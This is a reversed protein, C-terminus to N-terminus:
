SVDYISYLLYIPNQIELCVMLSLFARTDNHMMPIGQLGAILGYEGTSDVAAVPAGRFSKVCNFSSGRDWDQTYYGRAGYGIRVRIHAGVHIHSSQDQPFYDTLQGTIRTPYVCEIVSFRYGICAHAGAIFTM